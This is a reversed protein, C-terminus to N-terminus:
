AQPALQSLAGVGLQLVRASAPKM